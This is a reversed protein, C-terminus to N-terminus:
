VFTDIQSDSRSARAPLPNQEQEQSENDRTQGDSFQRAHRGKESNGTRDQQQGVQSDSLKLGNSEFMERLKPLSLEVAEKAAANNVQFQISAGRETQEIEVRIAGLSAPNLRIEVKQLETKAASLTQQSFQLSFDPDSLSLAQPLPANGTPISVPPTVNSTTATAPVPGHGGAFSVDKTPSNGAPLEPASALVTPQSTSAAPDATLVVAPLGSGSYPPLASNARLDPRPERALSSGAHATQTPPSLESAGPRLTKLLSERSAPVSAISAAQIKAEPRSSYDTTTSALVQPRLQGVWREFSGLSAAPKDTMVPKETAQTDLSTATKPLPTDSIIPSSFEVPKATLSRRGDIPTNTIFDLNAGRISVAPKERPVDHAIAPESAVRRDSVREPAARELVLDRLLAPQSVSAAVRVGPVTSQGEQMPLPSASVAPRAPMRNETLQQPTSLSRTSTLTQTSAFPQPRFDVALTRQLATEDLRKFQVIDPQGSIPLPSTQRSLVESPVRTNQDLILERRDVSLLQLQNQDGGPVGVSAPVRQEIQGQTLSVSPGVRARNAQQVPQPEVGGSVLSTLNTQSYRLVSSAIPQEVSVNQAPGDGGRRTLEHDSRPAADLRVGPETPNAVRAEQISGSVQYSQTVFPLEPGPISRDAGVALGNGDIWYSHQSNEDPAGVTAIPTGAPRTALMAPSGQAQGTEAEPPLNNGSAPLSNGSETEQDPGTGAEMFARFQAVPGSDDFESLEANESIQASITSNFINSLLDM